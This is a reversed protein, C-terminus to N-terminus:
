NVDISPLLYKIFLIFECLKLLFIKFISDNYLDCAQWYCGYWLICFQFRQEIKNYREFSQCIIHNLLQELNLIGDGFVVQLPYTKM